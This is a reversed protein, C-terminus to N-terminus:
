GSKEVCDRLDAGTISPSRLQNGGVAVNINSLKIILAAERNCIRFETTRRRDDMTQRGDDTRRRGDGTKQVQLNSKVDRIAEFLRKQKEDKEIAPQSIAAGESADGQRLASEGDNVRFVVVAYASVFPVEVFACVGTIGDAGKCIAFFFGPFIHAYVVEYQVERRVTVAVVDVVIAKVVSFSVEAGRGAGLVDPVASFEFAGGAGFEFAEAPHRFFIAPEGSDGDVALSQAQTRKLVLYISSLSIVTGCFLM